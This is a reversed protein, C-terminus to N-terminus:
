GARATPSSWARTSWGRRAPRRRRRGVRLGARGGRADVRRRVGLAPRLREGRRRGAAARQRRPRGAHEAAPRAPRRQRRHAAAPAQRYSAGHGAAAAGPHPRRRAGAGAASRRADPVARRGGGRQGRDRRLGTRRRAGPGRVAAGLREGAGGRPRLRQCGTRALPGLPVQHEDRLRLAIRSTSCWACDPSGTWWSSWQRAGASVRHRAARPQGPRRRRAARRAGRGDPRGPGARAM